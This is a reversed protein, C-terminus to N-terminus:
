TETIQTEKRKKEEKKVEVKVEASVKEVREEEEDEADEIVMGQLDDEDCEEGLCKGIGDRKEVTVNLKRRKVGENESGEDEGDEEDEADSAGFLHEIGRKRGNKRKGNGNESVGVSGKGSQTENLQREMMAVVDGM